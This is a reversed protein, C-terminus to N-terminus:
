IINLVGAILQQLKKATVEGSNINNLSPFLETHQANFKHESAKHKEQKPFHKIISHYTEEVRPPLLLTQTIIM